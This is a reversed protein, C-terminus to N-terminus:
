TPRLLTIVVRLLDGSSKALSQLQAYDGTMAGYAVPPILVVLALLLAAIAALFYGWSLWKAKRLPTSLAEARAAPSQQTINVTLSTTQEEVAHCDFEQGVIVKFKM